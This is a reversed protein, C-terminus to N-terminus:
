SSPFGRPPPLKLGTVGAQNNEDMYNYQIQCFDWDYDELIKLFGSTNGHYSFGINRIVGSQKKEAIWDIIGFGKLREWQSVDTLMHMLYYDVWDTRLRSLEESFYKEVSAINRVMYQPLKTAVNVKDRIGNRALIEGLAAESGPYLYATDYYTVGAKYAELIEKETKDIDIGAGKRSFRMCGYGLISLRNGYKDTRYQM